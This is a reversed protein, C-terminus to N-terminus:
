FVSRRRRKDETASNELVDEQKMWERVRKRDIGWEIATKSINGENRKAWQVVELKQAVTYSRQIKRSPSDMILVEGFIHM